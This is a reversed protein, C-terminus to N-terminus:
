RPGLRVQDAVKALAKRGPRHGVPGGQLGEGGAREGARGPFLHLQQGRRFPRADGVPQAARVAFRHEPRVAGFPVGALRLEGKLFPEQRLRLFGARRM